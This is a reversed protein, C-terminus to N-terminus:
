CAVGAALAGDQVRRAADLSSKLLDRVDRFDPNRALIRRCEAAAQEHRDTRHLVAALAFGVHLEEPHTEFRSRLVDLLLDFSELASAVDLLERLATASEGGERYARLFWGQAEEFRERGRAVLGCGLLAKANAPELSLVQEFQREAADWQKLLLRAAGAGILAPVHLPRRSLAGAYADLADDTRGLSTLIDGHLTEARVATEGVAGPLVAGVLELAVDFAKHEYFVGAEELERPIEQESERAVQKKMEGEMQKKM